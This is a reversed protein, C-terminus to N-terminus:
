PAFQCPAATAAVGQVYSPSPQYDNVWYVIYTSTDAASSSNLQISWVGGAGAASPQVLKATPVGDTGAKVTRVISQILTSGNIPRAATSAISIVGAVAATAVSAILPAVKGQEVNAM